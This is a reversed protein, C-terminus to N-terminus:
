WVKTMIKSESALTPTNNKRRTKIYKGLLGGLGGLEEADM